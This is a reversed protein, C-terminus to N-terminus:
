HDRADLYGLLLLLRLSLICCACQPGSEQRAMWECQQRDAHSNKMVRRARQMRSPSAIRANQLVHKLSLSLAGQQQRATDCPYIQDGRPV